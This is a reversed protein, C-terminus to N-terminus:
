LGLAAAEQSRVYEDAVDNPITRGKDYPADFGTGLSARLKELSEDSLKKELPFRAEGIQELMADSIGHLIASTQQDGDMACCLALGMICDAVVAREGSKRSRRLATVYWLRADDVKGLMIGVHGLNLQASVIAEDQLEESISVANILHLRAVEPNGELLELDGLSAELLGVGVRDGVLHLNALAEASDQRSQVPNHKDFARRQLVLGLLVPDNVQRACDVAEDMLAAGEERQGTSFAILGQASLTDALLAPDNLTRALAAAQEIHHEAEAYDARRWDLLGASCLASARLDRRAHAGPLELSRRLFESGELWHGRVYWYWRLAIGLRLAQEHRAGVSLLHAFAVRLNSQELQLRELWLRQEGGALQPAAKEALELFYRAHADQAAFKESAGRETLKENAYQRITELLRFRVSHDLSDMQVLSQDCLSTVLELSNRDTDPLDRCVDEAADMTFGGMFESIRFLVLREADELHDYSWDVMARLTQHRPVEEGSSSLLKFREDLRDHIEQLGVAKLRAAALEIALPIGDLGRCIEAVLAGNAGDLTFSREFRQARDIFLQISEFTMLTDPDDTDPPPVTLSPVRFVVEQDTGIPTRSTSLVHIRESSKLLTNILDHCAETLHECNDLVILMRRRKIAELMTALIAQGPEERTGLQAAVTAVVLEPDELGALEVFWVGDGSGDLLDAALELALRTKGAGGAGVLTVCRHEEVHEKVTALELERGVFSNIQRPLAPLNTMVEPSDLTRLAPFTVPLGPLDLQFVHEPRKLDKLRHEGLDRLRTGPPLADRILEATATSLLIQGGHGASMLRAVRNVAPGFYDGGREECEGSHLGIRVRLTLDAPWQESDMAQQIAAAAILAQSARSYAVCFADGVTKFVHGGSDAFATTLLEEHRQLAASMHNPQSEWLLSSGEIDSFLLTITGTPPLPAQHEAM